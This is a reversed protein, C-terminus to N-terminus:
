GGGGQGATMLFRGDARLINVGIIKVDRSCSIVVSGKTAPIRERVVMKVSLVLKVEETALPACLWELANGVNGVWGEVGDMQRFVRTGVNLAAAKAPIGAAM